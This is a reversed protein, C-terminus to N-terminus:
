VQGPLQSTGEIIQKSSIALKLHECTDDVNEDDKDINEGSNYVEVVTTKPHEQNGTLPWKINHLSKKPRKWVVWRGRYPITLINVYWGWINRLIKFVM